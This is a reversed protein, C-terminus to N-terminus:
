AGLFKWGWDVRLTDNATKNITASFVARSAMNGATTADFIGVENINSNTVDGAAWECRFVTWEGSVSDFTAAYQPYGSEFADDSTAIESILATQGKAAATADTGLRMYGMSTPAAEAVLKACYEDGYDVVLNHIREIRKIKGDPGFLTAVIRGELAFRGVFQNSIVKMIGKLLDDQSFM